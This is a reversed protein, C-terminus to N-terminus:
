PQRRTMSSSTAPSFSGGGEAQAGGSTVSVRRTQHLQRDRAFMDFADNTDGVVIDSTFSSFAVYRGHASLSPSAGSAASCSTRSM